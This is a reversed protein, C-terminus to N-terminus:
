GEVDCDYVEQTCEVRLVQVLLPIVVPIDFQDRDASHVGVVLPRDGIGDARYTSDCMASQMEKENTYRLAHEAAEKFQDDASDYVQWRDLMVEVIPCMPHDCRDTNCWDNMFDSLEDLEAPTASLISPLCDWLANVM